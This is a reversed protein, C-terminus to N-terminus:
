LDYNIPGIPDCFLSAGIGSPLLSLNYDCTESLFSKVFLKSFFSDLIEKNEGAFVM